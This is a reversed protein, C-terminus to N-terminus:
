GDQDNRATGLIDSLGVGCNRMAQHPAITARYYGAEFETGEIEEKAVSVIVSLSEKSSIQAPMALEFQEPTVGFKGIVETLPQDGLHFVRRGSEPECKSLFIGAM